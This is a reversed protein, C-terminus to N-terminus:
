APRKSASAVSGPQRTAPPEFLDVNDDSDPKAGSAKKAPTRPSPALPYLHLPLQKPGVKYMIGAEVWKKVTRSLQGFDMQTAKVIAALPTRGNCMRYAELLASSGTPSVLPRLREEPFAMRGIMAVLTRVLDAVESNLESEHQHEVKGVQSRDPPPEAPEGIM